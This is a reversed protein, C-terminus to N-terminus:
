EIIVKDIKSNVESLLDGEEDSQSQSQTSSEEDDNLSEVIADIEEIITQTVAEDKEFRIRFDAEEVLKGMRLFIDSNNKHERESLTGWIERILSRASDIFKYDIEGDGKSIKLFLAHLEIIEGFAETDIRHRSIIASERANTMTDLLNASHDGLIAVHLFETADVYSLEIDFKQYLKAGASTDVDITEDYAKLIKYLTTETRELYRGLWYLNSAVNATVLQEM